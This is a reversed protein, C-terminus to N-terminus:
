AADSESRDDTKTTVWALDVIIMHHDADPKRGNEALVLEWKPVRILAPDVIVHDIRSGREPRRGGNYSRWKQGSRVKAIQEATRYGRQAFYAAIKRKNKAGPIYSNFDGIHVIPTSANPRLREARRHVETIYTLRQRDSAATTGAKPHVSTAVFVQGSDKDRMVQAVAGKGKIVLEQSALRTGGSGRLSIRSPKYLLMKSRKYVALQYDPKLARVLDAVQQDKKGTEQLAVVDAKTAKIASAIRPAREGWPQLKTGCWEACVNWSAVRIQGPGAVGDEPCQAAATIAGGGIASNIKRAVPEWKAYATPFGSRQVAQAAATLSMKEWSPIQLLGTNSTHKAAGYFAQSALTPDQVQQATGWGQSPRQQFLGLSDRDGYDLNTLTSEQLATMLAIVVGRDGVGSEQGVRAITTANKLQDGSITVTKGGPLEATIKNTPRAGTAGIPTGAKTSKTGNLPAGQAAMFPKPDIPRSSKLIEFHLHPGTVYGTSGMTGLKTGAGVKQGKTVPSPSAMHAYRTRIGGGNDIVVQNGYAVNFGKEAVAGGAASVISKDGTAVLDIGTHLKSTHLVPHYRMGFQSTISYRAVMPSRWKGSMAAAETGLGDGCTMAAAPIVLVAGVVAIFVMPLIVVAALMPVAWVWISSKM